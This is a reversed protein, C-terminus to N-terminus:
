SLEPVSVENQDGGAQKTALASYSVAQSPPSNNLSFVTASGHLQSASPPFWVRM